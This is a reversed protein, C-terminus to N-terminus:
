QRSCRNGAQNAYRTVILQDQLLPSAQDETQHYKPDVEEIFRPNGHVVALVEMEEDVTVIDATEEM